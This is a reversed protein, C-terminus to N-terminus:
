FASAVDIKYEKTYTTQMEVLGMITLISIFTIIIAAIWPGYKQLSKKQKFWGSIADRWLLAVILALAGVIVKAIVFVTTIPLPADPKAAEEM